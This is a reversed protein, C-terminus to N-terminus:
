SGAASSARFGGRFLEKGRFEEEEEAERMDCLSWKACISKNGKNPVINNGKGQLLM